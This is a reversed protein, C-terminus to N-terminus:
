KKRRKFKLFKPIIKLITMRITLYCKIMNSVCKTYEVLNKKNAETTALIQKLTTTSYLHKDRLFLLFTKIVKDKQTMYTISWKEKDITRAKINKINDPQDFPKLIPKRKLVAVIEVDMKSMELIYSKVMKKLHQYIPDYKVVDRSVINFMSIWDHPDLFPFNALTFENIIHTRGRYAKFHINM